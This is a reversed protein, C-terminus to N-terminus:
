RSAGIASGGRPVGGSWILAATFVGAVIAAIVGVVSSVGIMTALGYELAGLLIGMVTSIM